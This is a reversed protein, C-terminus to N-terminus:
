IFEFSVDGSKLITDLVKMAQEDGLPKSQTPGTCVRAQADLVTQNPKRIKPDRYYTSVSPIKLDTKFSLEELGTSDLVANVTLRIRGHSSGSWRRVPLRLRTRDGIRSELSTIACLSSPELSPLSQM